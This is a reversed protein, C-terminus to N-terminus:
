NSDNKEGKAFRVANACRERNICRVLTDEPCYFKKHDIFVFKPYVVDAEFCKCEHCYEAVDLKIM